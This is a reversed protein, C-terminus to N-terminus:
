LQGGGLLNTQRPDRRAAEREEDAKIAMAHETIASAFGLAGDADLGIWAVKKGFKVVVKGNEQGIAIQLEGEDDPNLKGQPFQGTPGLKTM